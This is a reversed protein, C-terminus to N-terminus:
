YNAIFIRALNDPKKIDVVDMLAKDKNDYITATKSNRTFKGTDKNYYVKNYTDKTSGMIICDENLVRIKM